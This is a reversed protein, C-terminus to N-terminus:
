ITEGPLEDAASMQAEHQLKLNRERIIRKVRDITFLVLYILALPAILLLIFNIEDRAAGTGAYANEIVIVFLLVFIFKLTKM